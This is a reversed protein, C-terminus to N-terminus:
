RGHMEERTFKRGANAYDIRKVLTDLREAREQTQAVEALWERFLTNLSTKRSRAFERAQDILNEDASLTINKM